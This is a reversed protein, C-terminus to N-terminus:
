AEARGWKIECQRTAIQAPIVCEIYVSYWLTDCCFSYKKCPVVTSEFTTHAYPVSTIVRRSPFQGKQCSESQGSWKFVPLGQSRQNQCTQRPWYNNVKSYINNIGLLVPLSFSAPSSSILDTIFPLFTQYPGQLLDNFPRRWCRAMKSSELM